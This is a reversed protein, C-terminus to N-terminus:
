DTGEIKLLAENDEGVLLWDDTEWLREGDLKLTTDSPGLFALPRKSILRRLLSEVNLQKYLRQEKM